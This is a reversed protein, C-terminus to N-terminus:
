RLAAAQMRECPMVPKGSGTKALPLTLKGVGGAPKGVLEGPNMWALCVQSLSM